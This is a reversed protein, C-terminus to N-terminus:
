RPSRGEESPVAGAVTCVTLLLAVERSPADHRKFFRSLVARAAEDAHLRCGRGDPGMEARVATRVGKPQLEQMSCHPHAHTSYTPQSEVRGSRSAAARKLAITM